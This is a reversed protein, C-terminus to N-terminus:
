CSRGDRPRSDGRRLARRGDAPHDHLRRRPRHRLPVRLDEADHDDARLVAAPDLARRDRLDPVDRAEEAVSRGAMGDDPPRHRQRRPHDVADYRDRGAAAQSRPQLYLALNQITGGVAGISAMSGLMLFYFAPRSLISKLSPLSPAAAGAAPACCARPRLLAMPLAIAIMLLGLIRLAGRWGYAQTLTYALLPVLAGGVGIGSIRSAWRRAARRTSGDRSCCRTRCRGASCTASRTSRTSSISRASADDCVLPRRARRRGHRDRRAAAPASRLSRGAPRRSLRVGARRLDQQLRQGVHGAAADLRAGARLVSLLAAPRLARLRRRCLALPVRHPGRRDPRSRDNVDPPLRNM